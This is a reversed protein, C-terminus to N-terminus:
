NSDVLVCTTRGFEVLRLSDPMIFAPLAVRTRGFEVLRLSDPMIFAPLAVRATSVVARVCLVSTRMDYM